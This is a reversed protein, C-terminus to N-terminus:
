RVLNSQLNKLAKLFAEESEYDMMIVKPLNVLEQTNSTNTPDVKKITIEETGSDYKDEYNINQSARKVLEEYSIIASNEQEQEYKSLDIPRAEYNNELENVIDELAQSKSKSTMLNQEGTKIEDHIKPESRKPLENLVLMDEEDCRILFIIYVLLIILVLTATFFFADSWNMAKLLGGITM